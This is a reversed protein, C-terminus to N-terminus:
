TSLPPLGCRLAKPAPLELFHRAATYLPALLGALVLGPMADAVSKSQLDVAGGIEVVVAAVVKAAVADMDNLAQQAGVHDGAIRALRIRDWCASTEAQWMRRDADAVVQMTVVVGDVAANQEYDGVPEIAHGETAEVLERAHRAVLASDRASHALSVAAVGEGVAQWDTTDDLPSKTKRRKDIQAQRAIRFAEHAEKLVDQLPVPAGRTGPYILLTTMNLAKHPNHPLIV